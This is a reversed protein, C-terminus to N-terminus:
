LYEGIGIKFEPEIETLKLGNTGCKVVPSCDDSLAIVKGPEINELGCDVIESKWVKYESDKHEFHAGVYPRTLGRVLNYVGKASMRWDIIGDAKGRKRWVNAITYDQKIKTYNGIELKPLFGEIQLLATKIIKEYLIKADDTLDISIPEQSLIEGSDAGSDMFFFTSATHRLGLVLAWVIPHRGRNLPLAAPHFGVVGLSAISLIENKLLRSWGFCFIVDPNKEAIWKLTDTSNIDDVYHSPIKNASAIASLDCFDANFLSEKLTCVGVVNGKLLIIKELAKKSFEVTGIFVIKM